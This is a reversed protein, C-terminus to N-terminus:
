KEVNINEEQLIQKWSRLHNEFCGRLALTNGEADTATPFIIQKEVECIVDKSKFQENNQNDYNVETKKLTALGGGLSAYGGKLQVSAANVTANQGSPGNKGVTVQDSADTQGDGTLDFPSKTLYKGTFRDLMYFRAIGTEGGQVQIETGGCSSQKRVRQGQRPSFSIFYLEDDIIISQNVVRERYGNKSHSNGDPDSVTYNEKPFDLVWGFYNGSQRGRLDINAYDIRSFDSNIGNDTSKADRIGRIEGFNTVLKKRESDNDINPNEINFAEKAFLNARKLPLSTSGTTGNAMSTMFRFNDMVVYFSQPDSNLADDTSFLKGTGFYLMVGEGDPSDAITIQSTIPQAKGNVDEATFLPTAKPIAAYAADMAIQASALEQELLQKEKELAEKQAQTKADAIKLSIAFVSEQALIFEDRKRYFNTLKDTYVQDQYSLTIKQDKWGGLDFKWVNGQLDGAYVFDAGGDFDVDQVTLPGLGNGEGKPAIAKTDVQSIVRGTEADLVLLSASNSSSNYGNAILVVWKGDSKEPTSTDALWVIRPKSMVNGLMLPLDEGTKEWRILEQPKNLSNKNLDFAFVSEGGAGMSGVALTHWSGDTFQIDKVDFQGGVLTGGKYGPRTTAALKTFAGRPIYQFIADGTNGNLAYVKGDDSGFLVLPQRGGSYTYTPNHKDDGFKGTVEATLFNKYGKSNYLPHFNSLTGRNGVFVPPSYIVEGIFGPVSSSSSKEGLKGRVRYIAPDLTNATVTKDPTDGAIDNNSRVFKGRIYDVRGKGIGEGDGDKLAQQQGVDLNEWLFEVAQKNASGSSALTYIKNSVDAYGKNGNKSLLDYRKQAANWEPNKKTAGSCDSKTLGKATTSIKQTSNTCLQYGEIDGTHKSVDVVASYMMAGGVQTSTINTNSVTGSIKSKLPLVSAAKIRAAIRDIVKQFSAPDDVPLAEGRGMKAAKAFDREVSNVSGSRITGDEVARFYGEINDENALDPYKKNYKDRLGKWAPLGDILGISYFTLHQWTAPDNKRDWMIPIEAGNKGQARPIPDGNEDRYAYQDTENGHADKIKEANWFPAVDNELDPRLDTVWGYFAFDSLKIGYARYKGNGRSYRFDDSYNYGYELDAPDYETFTKNHILLPAGLKRKKDSFQPTNNQNHADRGNDIVDGDVGQFSTYAGGNYGGDAIVIAFNPRCSKINSGDRAKIPYGYDENKVSVFEDAFFDLEKGLPSTAASYHPRYQGNVNHIVSQILEVVAETLPTGGSPHLKSVWSYFQQAYDDSFDRPILNLRNRQNKTLPPYLSYGPYDHEYASQLSPYGGNWQPNNISSFGLRVQGELQKLGNILGAAVVQMRNFGGPDTFTKGNVTLSKASNVRRGMSGSNDVVVFINPKIPEPTTDNIFEGGGTVPPYRDIKVVADAALAHEISWLVLVGIVAQSIKNRLM